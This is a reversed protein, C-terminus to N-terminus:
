KAALQGTYGDCIPKPTVVKYQGGAAQLFYLCGSPSLGPLGGKSVPTSFSVPRPLLGNGTYDQDARLRTMFSERTPSKGALELGTVLVDGSVYGAGVNFGNLGTFKGYRALAARETDTGPNAITDPTMPDDFYFGQAASRAAPSTLIGDTDGYGTPLLIVKLKGGANRVAAVANIDGQPDLPVYFGNVGADKLGIAYTTYSAQGLQANTNFYGIKIGADRASAVVAAGSAESGPISFTVSGLSTVGKSRLFAGVSAPVPAQPNEPGQFPFLNTYGPTAWVASAPTPVGVVPIHASNLYREASAFASAEAFIAFVNDQQVLTQAASLTQSDSSGTDKVDLTIKKGYVGGHANQWDIRAELAMLLGSGYAGAGAGTEDILVGIRVASGTVGPAGGSAGSAGASCAAVVALALASATASVLGTRCRLMRPSVM